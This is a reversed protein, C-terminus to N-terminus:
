GCSKGSHQPILCLEGHQTRLSKGVSGDGGREWFFFFRKKIAPLGSAQRQSEERSNRGEILGMFMSQVTSPCGGSRSKHPLGLLLDAPVLREGTM